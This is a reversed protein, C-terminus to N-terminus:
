GKAVASSRAVRGEPFLVVARRARLLKLIPKLSAAHGVDLIEHPLWRLAWRMLWSQTDQPPVIVVADRGLALGLLLADLRSRHNSVIMVPKGKERAYAAGSLGVRFVARLFFIM